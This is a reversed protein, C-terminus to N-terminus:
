FDFRSPSKLRSGQSTTKQKSAAGRTPDLALGINTRRQDVTPDTTNPATAKAVERKLTGIMSDVDTTGCYHLLSLDNPNARIREERTRWDQNANALLRMLQMHVVIDGNQMAPVLLRKFNYSDKSDIKLTVPGIESTESIERLFRWVTLVDEVEQWTLKSVNKLNALPAGPKLAVPIASLAVDYFNRLIFHAVTEHPSLPKGELIENLENEPIADYIGRLVAEIRETAEAQIRDARRPNGGDPFYVEMVLVFAMALVDYVIAVVPMLALSIGKLWGPSNAFTRSQKVSLFIAM